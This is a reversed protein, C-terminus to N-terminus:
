RSDEKGTVAGRGGAMKYLWEATSPGGGSPVCSPPVAGIRWDEEKDAQFWVLGKLGMERASAMAECFWRVKDGGKSTSATEFVIVPKRPSLERLRALPPAFIRRFSMWRSDWGDKEKTKSLGWNYGDVGLIDVYGDGPYYADIRNWQADPVSEANPCFAWLANAAGEERFLDAVRRFMGRYIEPSAPGYEAAETGWHYRSLNMEHAFRIIFPRGWRAAKRAFERIYPDYRGEMIMRHHIATERGNGYYMPEWTVCPVAGSAAIAELTELPFGGPDGTGPWQLFFVVVEPRVPFRDAADKLADPTLPYGHLAVGLFPSGPGAAACGGGLAALIFLAAIRAALLPFSAKM